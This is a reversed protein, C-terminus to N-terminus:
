GALLSFMAALTHRIYYIYRSVSRTVKFVRLLRACRLVSIGFPNMVHTKVLIIEVISLVVVLCDFRNFLSMYYRHIGLGYLKLLMEIAFLSVFIINAKDTCSCFHRCFLRRVNPLLDVTTTFNSECPRCLPWPTETALVIPSPAWVGLHWMYGGNLVCTIRDEFYTDLLKIKGCIYWTNQMLPMYLLYATHGLCVKRTSDVGLMWTHFSYLM